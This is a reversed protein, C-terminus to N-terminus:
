GQPRANELLVIAQRLTAIVLPYNGDSAALLGAALAQANPMRNPSDHAHPYGRSDPM